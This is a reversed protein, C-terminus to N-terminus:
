SLGAIGLYIQMVLLSDQVDLKGDNNMDLAEIQEPTLQVLGKIYKNVMLADAPTVSGDGTADGKIRLYVTVAASDSFATGNGAQWNFTTKYGTFTSPPVFSLESVETAPIVQNKEVDGGKLQLKGSEPLSAIRIESMSLSSPDTYYTEFDKATFSVPQGKIVNKTFAGIVPPPVVEKVFGLATATKGDPDFTVIRDRATDAMYIKGNPALDIKNNLDIPYESTEAFWTELKPHNPYVVGAYGAKLIKDQSTFYVSEKAFDATLDGLPDSPSLIYSHDGIYANDTRTEWNQDTDGLIISSAETYGGSGGFQESKTSMLMASYSVKRKSNGNDESYMLELYDYKENNFSRSFRLINRIYPQKNLDSNYTNMEFIQGANLTEGSATGDPNFIYIMPTKGSQAAYILGDYGMTVATVNPVTMVSLVNGDPATRLVRNNGTDAILMERDGNAATYFEIDTPKSLALNEVAAMARPSPLGLNVLLAAIVTLLVWKWPGIKRINGTDLSLM